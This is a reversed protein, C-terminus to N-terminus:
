AKWGYYERHAATIEDHEAESVLIMNEVSDAGGESIPQINPNTWCITPEFGEARLLKVPELSCPGCCAHLLLRPRVGAPITQLASQMQQLWNVPASM